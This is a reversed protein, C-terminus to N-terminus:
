RIQQSEWLEAAVRYLTFASCSVEEILDAIARPERLKEIVEQAVALTADDEWELHLTQAQYPKDPDPLRRRVTPLEDILRMSELLLSMASMSIRITSISEPDPERVTRFFFEGQDDNYFLQYVAEAGELLGCRARDVTGDLLLVEASGALGAVDQIWVEIWEHVVGAVDVICGLLARGTLMDRLLVYHGGAEDPEPRFLVCTRLLSDQQNPDLAVPVYGEPIGGSTTHGVSQSGM